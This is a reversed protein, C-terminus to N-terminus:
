SNRIKLYLQKLKFYTDELSDNNDIIYLNPIEEIGVYDIEDADLRRQSEGEIKDRKSLRQELISREVRLYVPQLDGNFREKYRRYMELPGMSVVKNIDKVDTYITAYRWNGLVTSYTRVECDSHKILNDMTDDDIYHYNVGDVEGERIPRTTYLVLEELDNFEEKLLKLLTDKGSGSKGLIFLM